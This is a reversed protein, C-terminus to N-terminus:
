LIKIKYFSCNSFILQFHLKDKVLNAIKGYKVKFLWIVLMQNNVFIIFMRM